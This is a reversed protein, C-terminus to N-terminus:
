GTVVECVYLLELDTTDCNRFILGWLLHYSLNIGSSYCFSQNQSLKSDSLSNLSSSSLKPSKNTAHRVHCFTLAVTIPGGLNGNRGFAAGSLLIGESPFGM